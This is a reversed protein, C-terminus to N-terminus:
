GQTNRRRQENDRSATNTMSLCHASACFCALIAQPPEGVAANDHEHKESERCRGQQRTGHMQLDQALIKQIVLRVAAMQAGFRDGRMAARNGVTVALRECDARRDVTDPGVRLLKRAGDIPQRLERLHEADFGLRQHVPNGPLHVLLENVQLPMQRRILRTANEREIQRADVHLPLVSAVVRGAFDGPVQDAERVDVVLTELAQLKGKVVPEATLGALLAHQLIPESARDLVDLTDARRLRALGQTGAYVQAQLVNGVARELASNLAETRVGSRNDNQVHLRPLHQRDCVLRSVVRVVPQLEHRIPIAITCDGVDELRSGTDLRQDDSRCELTTM